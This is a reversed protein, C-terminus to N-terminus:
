LSLPNYNQKQRKYEIWLREKELDEMKQQEHKRTEELQKMTNIEEQLINIEHELEIQKINQRNIIEKSKKNDNLVDFYASQINEIKKELEVINEQQLITKVNLTDLQTKIDLNDQPNEILEKVEQKIRKIIDVVIEWYRGKIQADNYENFRTLQLHHHGYGTKIINEITEIDELTVQNILSKIISIFYKPIPINDNILLVKTIPSSNSGDLNASTKSIDVNGNIDIKFFYKLYVGNGKGCGREEHYCSKTIIDLAYTTM